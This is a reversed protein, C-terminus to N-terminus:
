NYKKYCYSKDVNGSIGDVKGTSTYQWMTYNGKYDTKETYHALWIDYSSLKSMDLNDNLWYKNAYIMPIYGANKITDCFAKVIKTREQKSLNDARGSYQPNANSLETDIAIPYTLKIGYKKILNLVFRAEEKAEDITIAQTYFYIGVDIKNAIAGLVNKSFM